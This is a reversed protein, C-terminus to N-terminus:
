ANEDFVVTADAISGVEKGTKDQVKVPEGAKAGHLVGDTVHADALTGVVQGGVEVDGDVSANTIKGHSVSGGHFQVNVVKPQAVQATTGTGGVILAGVIATRTLDLILRYLVIFLPMQLVLPLCGAFPNINHEKYFKMMEENLKQRDNKYKAQLRKMEPQVKQMAQM